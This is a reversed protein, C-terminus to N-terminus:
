VTSLRCAAGSVLATLIEVLVSHQAVKRSNSNAELFGERDFEDDKIFDRYSALLGINFAILGDSLVKKINMAEPLPAGTEVAKRKEIIQATLVINPLILFFLLSPVFSVSLPRRQSHVKLM